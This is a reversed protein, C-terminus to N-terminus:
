GVDVAAGMIRPLAERWADAADVLPVRFAGDAQLHAGGTDGAIMAPIGASSARGLVENLSESAVSLVVRSTSESFCMRADGISVRFGVGGTIAMECLAV